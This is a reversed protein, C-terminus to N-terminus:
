KAIQSKHNSSQTIPYHPLKFDDISSMLQVIVRNGWDAIAFGEIVLRVIALHGLPAIKPAGTDRHHIVISQASGRM